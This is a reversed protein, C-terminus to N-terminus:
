RRFRRVAFIISWILAPIGLPAFSAPLLWADIDNGTCAPIPCQSQTFLISAVFLGAILFGCGRLFDGFIRM